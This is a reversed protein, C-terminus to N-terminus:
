TAGDFAGAPEAPPAVVGAGPVGFHFRLAVVKAVALQGRLPQVFQDQDFERYPILPPEVFRPTRHRRFGAIGARQLDVSTGDRSM